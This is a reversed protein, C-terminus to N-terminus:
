KEDVVEMIRFATTVGDPYKIDKLILYDNGILNEPAAINDAVVITGKPMNPFPWSFDMFEINGLSEVLGVDNGIPDLNAIKHYNTPNHREYFLFYIYPQSFSQQFVIKTNDNRYPQLEEVAERYGYFWFKADHVSMHIYYADIYYFFNAFYFLAFIGLLAK